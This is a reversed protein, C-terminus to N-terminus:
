IMAANLEPALEQVFKNIFQTVQIDLLQYPDVAAKASLPQPENVELKAGRGM